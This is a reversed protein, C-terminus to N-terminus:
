ASLRIYVCSFLYDGTNATTHCTPTKMSILLIVNQFYIAVDKVKISISHDGNIKRNSLSYKIGVGKGKYVNGRPSLFISMEFGKVILSQHICVKFLEM